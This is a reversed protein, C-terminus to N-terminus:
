QTGLGLEGAEMLYEPWHLRLSGFANLAGPRRVEKAPAARGRRQNDQEKSEFRFQM